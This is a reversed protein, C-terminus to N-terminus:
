HTTFLYIPRLFHTGIDRSLWAISQSETRDFTTSVWFAGGWVGEWGGTKYAYPAFGISMDWLGPVPFAHLFDRKEKWTLIDGRDGESELHWPLLDKLAQARARETETPLLISRQVQPTDARSILGLNPLGDETGRARKSWFSLMGHSARLVSCGAACLGLHMEDHLFVFYPLLLKYLLVLFCEESYWERDRLEWAKLRGEHNGREEERKCWCRSGHKSGHNSCSLIGEPENFILLHCSLWSLFLCPHFFMIVYKTNQSM